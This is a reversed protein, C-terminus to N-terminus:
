NSALKDRIDCLIGSCRRFDEPTCGGVILVALDKLMETIIMTESFSFEAPHDAIDERTEM